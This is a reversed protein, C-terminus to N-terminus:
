SDIAEDTATSKRELEITFRYAYQNDGQNLELQPARLRYRQNAILLDNTLSTWTERDRILGKFRLVVVGSASSENIELNTLHMQESPRLRGLLDQLETAYDVRARNFSVLKRWTQELPVLREVQAELDVREQKVKALQRDLQYNSFALPVSVLAILIAAAAVALIVRQRFRVAPDVPRRPNLFDISAVSSSYAQLLAIDRVTEASQEVHFEIPISTTRRMEIATADDFDGYAHIRTTTLEPLRQSAAQLLRNTTSCIYRARETSSEPSQGAHSIVPLQNRSVLFEFRSGSALLDLQLEDAGRVPSLLPVGLEGVGLALPKLGAHKLTNLLLQLIPKPVAVVLISTDGDKASDHQLFDIELTARSVPFLNECQLHVIDALSENDAPPLELNKLVVFRRPVSAIVERVNIARQRLENAIRDGIVEYSHQEAESWEVTFSSACSQRHGSRHYTSITASNAGWAVVLVKPPLPARRTSEGLPLLARLGAWTREDSKQGIM